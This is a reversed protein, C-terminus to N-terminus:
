KVLKKLENKLVKGLVNKPLHDVFLVVQPVKYQAMNKSCYDIIEEITLTRSNKIVIFAVVAEETILDPMRVVACEEVKNNSKIIKEVENPYVSMGSVMILEKKRSM